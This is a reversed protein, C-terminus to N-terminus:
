LETETRQAEEDIARGAQRMMEAVECLHDFVLSSASKIEAYEYEDPSLGSTEAEITGWFRGLKSLLQQGATITEEGSDRDPDTLHAFGEHAAADRFEKLAHCTEVDTPQIAEVELLWELHADFRNKHRSLVRQQYEPSITLGNQDFGSMYFNRVGDFVEAKILEHLVTALSLSLLNSTVAGARLHSRLRAEYNNDM